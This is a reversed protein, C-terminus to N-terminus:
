LKQMNIGASKLQLEFEKIDALATEKDADYESCIFDAIREHEIGKQMLAFIRAGAENMPLPKKYPMGAQGIDILWYLGAAKRLIYEVRGNDM